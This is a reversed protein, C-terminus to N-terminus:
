GLDTQRAANWRRVARVVARVIAALVAVAVALPVLAWWNWHAPAGGYAGFWIVPLYVLTRLSDAATFAEPGGFVIVYRGSGDPGTGPEVRLEYEVGPEFAVREEGGTWFDTLSFPEWEAEREPLGPDDILAVELGDALLRLSPRFGEHEARSPVIIGITQTVPEDVHFTYADYEEDPALYGYIARSVEPGGVTMPGGFANRELDPVHAVATGPALALVVAALALLAQARRSAFGTRRM